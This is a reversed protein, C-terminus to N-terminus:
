DAWPPTLVTGDALRARLGISTTVWSVATRDTPNEVSV